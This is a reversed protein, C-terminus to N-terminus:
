GESDESAPGGGVPNRKADQDVPGGGSHDM